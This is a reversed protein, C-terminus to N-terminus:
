VISQEVPVMPWFLSIFQEETLFHNNSLKKDQLDNKVKLVFDNQLICICIYMMLRTEFEFSFHDLNCPLLTASDLCRM